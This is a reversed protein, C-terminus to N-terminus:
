SISGWTDGARAYAATSRAIGWERCLTNVTGRPARRLLRVQMENLRARPNRSGEPSTGHSRKDAMNQTKTGWALNCLRNDQRNGNLHRAELGKGPPCVFAWLVLRHVGAVKRAGDKYLAVLVYGRALDGRLLRSSHLRDFGAKYTVVRDVSRVNGQDSVQYYGEYGPVDKWIETM